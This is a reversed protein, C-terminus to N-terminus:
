GQYRRFWGTEPGRDGHLRDSQTFELVLDDALELITARGEVRFVLEPPLATEGHWAGLINGCIAGTSDSDGSHTVAVSLADVFQAPDPHRLAAYVGMALAEEALWGAGLREIDVPGTRAHDRAARLAASTDEHDDRRSLLELTAEVATDLEAGAVLHHVISALAGSALRGTPHGHTYGAATAAADFFWDEPAGDPPLLGFPASRMVGGCGKSDNTALAGYSPIRAGGRRPATLATLCTTGPARRAYLWPQTALVGRADPPPGPLLQTDLWEDYAAHVVSVTFGVGRDRRIGARILGLVTFLTMQTDDTILATGTSGAPLYGRVGQDGCEARIRDASWFEVPAGLADGIAGGLLCGRVRSRYREAAVISMEVVDGRVWGFM